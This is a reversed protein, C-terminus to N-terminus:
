HNCSRDQGPFTKELNLDGVDMWDEATGHHIFKKPVQVTVRKQCPRIDDDCDHYVYLVPEIDTFERTTGDLAFQGDSGSYGEDLLDDADGPNRDLDFIKVKANRWPKGDCLLRGRVAVGQLRFALAVSILATLVFWKMWPENREDPDEYKELLTRTTRTSGGSRPSINSNRRRRDVAEVREENYKMVTELNFVGFEYENKNEEGSTVYRGPIRFKLKRQGPKLGDNCDHHIALLPEFSRKETKGSLVFEGRRDTYGEDVVMKSNLEGESGQWLRVRVTAAEFDGCLLKGRVTVDYDARVLRYSFLFVAFALFISNYTSRHM